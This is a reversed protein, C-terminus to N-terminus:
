LLFDALITNSIYYAKKDLKLVNGDRIIFDAYKKLQKGYVDYIDKGFRENFENINIGKAMRLGLVAFESIKDYPSLIEEVENKYGLLDDTNKSRVNGIYSSAGAGLGIYEGCKWYRSNHRSEKGEVSFNSIEYQLYGNGNLSNCIFEYMDAFSDEGMATIEGNKEKYYFPTGEEITLGYCSIHEPALKLIEAISYSIKETTQGPLGFMLDLSVNNIGCDRIVNYTHYVEKCSHLRGLMKLEDDNFSQVGMSIRNIGANKYARIKKTVASAPNVEITIEADSSVNFHLYVNELFSCIYSADVSSPTGGGFYITDIDCKDKSLMEVTLKNFYQEALDFKGEYSTFDCYNCKRQCFPIHIYLGKKNDM